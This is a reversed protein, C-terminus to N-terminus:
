WGWPSRDDARMSSRFDRFLWDRISLLCVAAVAIPPLASVGLVVVHVGDM